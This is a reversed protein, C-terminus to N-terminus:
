DPLQTGPLVCHKVYDAAQNATWDGKPKAQLQDCWAQTGLKPTCASVVLALLATSLVAIKM